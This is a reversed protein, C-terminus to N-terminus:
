YTKARPKAHHKVSHCRWVKHWKGHVKVRVLHAASGAKCMLVHHSPKMSAASAETMNLGLAGIAIIAAATVMSTKTSIM